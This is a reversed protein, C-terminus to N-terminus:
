TLGFPFAYPSNIEKEGFACVLFAHILRTLGQARPLRCVLGITNESLRHEKVRARKSQDLSSIPLLFSCAQPVM